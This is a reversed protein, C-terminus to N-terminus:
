LQCRISVVTPMFYIGNLYRFHVIYIGNSIAVLFHISRKPKVKKTCNYWSLNSSKLHKCFCCLCIFLIDCLFKFLISVKSFLLYWIRLFYRNSVLYRFIYSGQYHPPLLDLWKGYSEMFPLISTIYLRFFDRLASIHWM